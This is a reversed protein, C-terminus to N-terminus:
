HAASPVCGPTGGNAGVDLTNKGIIDNAIDMAGASDDPIEHSSSASCAQKPRTGFNDIWAQGQPIGTTTDMGGFRLHINVGAPPIITKSPQYIISDSQFRNANLVVTGTLGDSCLTPTTQGQAQYAPDVISAESPTYCMPTQGLTPACPPPNGMQNQNCVCGQDLRSTVPGATLESMTLESPMGGSGALGYEVIAYGLASAGASNGTACLPASVSATSSPNITKPNNYVWDVLTSYRCALRRVGGPGQLWGDPQTTTFPAGFSIQVTNYKANSVTEVTQYGFQWFSDYLGNGGSGILFLVTGIPNSATNVKLYATLDPVADCSVTMSYCTANSLGGNSDAPCQSSDLTQLNKITGLPDTQQVTITATGFQQPDFNSTANITTAVSTTGSTFGPAVFLGANNADFAGGSQQSQCSPCSASWIVGNNGSPAGDVTATYQLNAGQGITDTGPSVTVIIHVNVLAQGTTTNDDNSTAIVAVGCPSVPVVTPATYTM